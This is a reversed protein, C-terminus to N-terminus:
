ESPPYHYPKKEEFLKLQMRGKDGFIKVYDADELAKKQWKVAEDFQGVEAYACALTDLCVGMKFDSMKCAITAIEVAKAGDRFKEDPSCALADAKNNYALVLEPESRIAEDYDAVARRYDGKNSYLYGRNLYAQAHDPNLRIGEGFDKLADDTRKLQLEAYARNVFANATPRLRLSEDYDKVAREFDGRRAFLRGRGNWHAEGKPDLRIAEDLDKAAADVENRLERAAARRRYLDAEGPTKEIQGTFYNVAEDALVAKGKPFWVKKGFEKVQLQGNRDDLVTYTTMSLEVGAKGKGAEAKPGAKVAAEKLVIGKGAWSGEEAFVPPALTLPALLFVAFARPSM